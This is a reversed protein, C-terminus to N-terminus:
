LCHLLCRAVSGAQSLRALQKTPLGCFAYLNWSGTADSTTSVAICLFNPNTFIPMMMVWVNALKDYQAIEDLNRSTSCPAGLSQWLTNGSAPGFIPNGTSKDFVAFSDNVFQVFQTAGVAGNTDPVIAQESYGSFGNGVGLINLGSNTSLTTLSDLPGADPSDRVAADPTTRAAHRAQLVREDPDSNQGPSAPPLPVM